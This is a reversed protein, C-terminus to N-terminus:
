RKYVTTNNYKFKILLIINGSKKGVITEKRDQSWHSADHLGKKCCSCAEWLKWMQKGDKLRNLHLIWFILDNKWYRSCRKNLNSHQCKTCTKTTALFFAFFKFPLVINLCLVSIRSQRYPCRLPALQAAPLIQLMPDFMRSTFRHYHHYIYSKTKTGAKEELTRYCFYVSLITAIKKSAM